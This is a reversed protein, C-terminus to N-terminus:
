FPLWQRSYKFPFIGIMQNIIGEEIKVDWNFYFRKWNISLHYKRFDVHVFEGNSKIKM